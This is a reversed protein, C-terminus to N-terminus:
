SHETKFDSNKPSNLFSVTRQPFPIIIGEKDFRKKISEILECRMVFASDYDHSWAWGRVIVSSDELRMVRVVVRPIGTERDYNTRPDVNLPHAKIEEAIIAKAKDIDSNYSIGFEIRQCSRVDGLDYNIVKEKNIVSNPIVIMKNDFDKIITHRLSIDWVTGMIDGSIQILDGLKFPKSAIILIGALINSFTEQAAFGIIVALIGAGGLLTTSLAKLEPINLLILLFGLGYIAFEAISRYFYYKTTDGERRNIKEIINTFAARSVSAAIITLIAIFLITLVLNMQNEILYHYQNELVVSLLFAISSIITFGLIIRKVARVSTALSRNKTRKEFFNFVLQITKYVAFTVLLIIVCSTLIELFRSFEM